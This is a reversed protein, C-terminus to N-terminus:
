FDHGHVFHQVPPKYAVPKTNAVPPHNVNQVGGIGTTFPGHVTGTHGPVLVPIHSPLKIGKM